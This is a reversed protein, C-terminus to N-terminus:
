DLIFNKGVETSKLSIEVFVDFPDIFYNKKCLHVFKILRRMFKYLIKYFINFSPIIVLFLDLTVHTVFWDVFPPSAISAGEVIFCFGGFAFNTICFLRSILYLVISINASTM